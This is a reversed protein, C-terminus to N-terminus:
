RLGIRYLSGAGTQGEQGIAASTVYLSDRGVLVCSTCRAAPVEVHGADRGDPSLRQIRWGDWMAVWLNGDGDTTMGDPFGEGPGFRRLLRRPGLWGDNQLTFAYIEQRVSDTHYVIRGDPSFAPGNTVRYGQDMVRFSGDAAFAYLSGTSDAESDDMTGAWYRGDPGLKGDNFRNGPLHREPHVVSRVTLSPGDVCIWVLGPDGCAIFVDGTMDPPPLWPPAVPALSCLRFPTHWSRRDGDRHRYAHLQRGKIDVWFVCGSRADWVPGEGLTAGAPWVESVTRALPSRGDM